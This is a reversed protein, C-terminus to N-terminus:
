TRLRLPLVIVSDSGSDLSGDRAAFDPWIVDHGITSCDTYAPTFTTGEFVAVLVPLRKTSGDFGVLKTPSMM